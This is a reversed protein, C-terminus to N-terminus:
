WVKQGASAALAAPFNRRIADKDPEAAASGDGKAAMLPVPSNGRSGGSTLKQFEDVTLGEKKAVLKKLIPEREARMKDDLGYNASIKKWEADLAATEELAAKADQFTKLEGAAAELDKGKADVQVTLESVKNTTEVLSAKAVELEKTATTLADDSAKKAEEAAKKEAELKVTAAQTEKAVITAVLAELTEPIGEYKMSMGGKSKTKDKKDEDAKPKVWADGAVLARTKIRQLVTDREPIDHLLAAGRETFWSARHAENHMPVRRTGGTVYAYDADPIAQRQAETLGDFKFEDTPVTGAHLVASEPHAASSKLLIAGGSFEYHKIRLVGKQAKVFYATDPDYAIEYSAGLRGANAQIYEVQDPFDNKWLSAVTRFTITGDENEIPVSGLFTGIAVPAKGADIHGDYKETVHVPKTILTHAAAELGEKELLYKVDGQHQSARGVTTLDMVVLHTNATGDLSAILPNSAKLDALLKSAVTGAVMRASAVVELTGKKVYAEKVEVPDDVLTIDEDTITFSQKWLSCKDTADDFTKYVCYGETDDGWIDVIYSYSNGAKSLQLYIADRIQSHSMAATHYLKMAGGSGHVSARNWASYCIGARQNNDYENSLASMCRSIFASKAEDKRPSPIPM